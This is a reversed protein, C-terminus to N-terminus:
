GEAEREQERRQKNNLRKDILYNVDLTIVYLVLFWSFIISHEINGITSLAIVVMFPMFGLLIAVLRSNISIVIKELRFM